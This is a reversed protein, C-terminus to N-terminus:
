RRTMESGRSGDSLPAPYLQVGSAFCAKPEKTEHHGLGRSKALFQSCAHVGDHGKGREMKAAGCGFDKDWFRRIPNYHGFM